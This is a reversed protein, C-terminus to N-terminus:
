VVKLWKTAIRLKSNNVWVTAVPNIDHEVHLVIGTANKRHLGTSVLIKVLDGTKIM